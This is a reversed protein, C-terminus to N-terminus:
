APDESAGAKCKKPQCGKLGVPSCRLHAVCVYPINAGIRIDYEPKGGGRTCIHKILSPTHCDFQLTKFFYGSAMSIHCLSLKENLSASEGRKKLCSEHLRSLSQFRVPIVVAQPSLVFVILILLLPVYITRLLIVSPRLLRYTKM